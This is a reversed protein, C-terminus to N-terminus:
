KIVVIKLRSTPTIIFYIGSNLDNVKADNFPTISLTKIIQGLETTIIVTEPLTSKIIFSGNNPNPYALIVNNELASNTKIGVCILVSVTIVASNSCFGKTAVVTYTTTVTNNAIVNPLNTVNLGAPPSWSYSITPSAALITSSAQLSTSSGQCFGGSGSFTVTPTEFINVVFSTTSSTGFNNTASCYITYTANSYPFSISTTSSTPNAINVGASPSSVSWQYSTPSNSASATFSVPTAPSSCVNMPGTIQNMVPIQAICNLILTSLFISYFYKKVM